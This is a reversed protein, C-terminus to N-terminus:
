HDVKYITYYETKTFGEKQWMLFKFIITTAKPSTSAAEITFHPCTDEIRNRVLGGLSSFIFAVLLLVQFLDSLQWSFYVFMWEASQDRARM